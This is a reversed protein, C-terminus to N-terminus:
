IQKARPLTKKSSELLEATTAENLKRPRSNRMQTMDSRLGPPLSPRQGSGTDSILEQRCNGGGVGAADLAGTVSRGPVYLPGPAVAGVRLGGPM